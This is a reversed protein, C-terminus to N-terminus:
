YTELKGAFVDDEEANKAVSMTGVSISIMGQNLILTCNPQFRLSRGTNPCQKERAHDGSHADEEHALEEVAHGSSSSSAARM